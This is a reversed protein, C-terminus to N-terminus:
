RKNIALRVGFGILGLGVLRRSVLRARPSGALKVAVTHGLLVLGSQYLLSILSVHIMMAVLTIAGSGPALFLPFFAMFFMIAKPNTLCVALGQRFCAQRGREQARDSGSEEPARCLLKFGLWCLYAIGLCQLSSLVAQHAALVAALGLVASVMFLLDGTLTGLVTDMGSRVGYRATANLITLTGSGPILQFVLIAALFTPYSEIGFM